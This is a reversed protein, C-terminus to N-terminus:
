VIDQYNGLDPITGRLLDSELHEAFSRPDGFLETPAHMRNSQPVSDGFDRTGQRVMAGLLYV